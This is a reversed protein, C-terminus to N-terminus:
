QLSVEVTSILVDNIYMNCWMAGSEKSKVPITLTTDDTTTPSHMAVYQTTEEGDFTKLTVKILFAEEMKPLMFTASTIYDSVLIGITINVRANKVVMAGVDPQQSIVKNNQTQDVVDLFNVDGSQLNRETLIKSAEEQGMGILQPVVVSGGSVNVQILEGYNVLSGAEPSQSVIFDEEIESSVVKEVVSMAFGTEALKKRAADLSIGTIDPTVFLERGKSVNIVISDGLYMKSQPMPIQNIIINNEVVNHNIYNVRTNLGMDKAVSVAEMINLGILDPSYVTRSLNNILKIGWFVVAALVVTLIAVVGYIRRKNKQFRSSSRRKKPPTSPIPIPDPIAVPPEEKVSTKLRELINQANVPKGGKIVDQVDLAMDYATQYRNKPDKEMAVNVIDIIEQPVDPKLANIPTPEANIHQMAVAIPTEGEFPVKGTLMEYLVVGTSYIDSTNEAKKGQAQEPSVYQVTGVAMDTHTLTPVDAIRAIGFDSVKINGNGDVLINQPKIDRHVIGKSHAHKLASLIRLSIECAKIPDLFGRERIIDKLTVGEVLEMCLYRLNGELGVDYLAVINPHKMKSAALAEYNFREVFDKNSAHESTLIKIAMFTGTTIDWGKYVYSMGGKDILNLVRYRGAFVKGVIDNM